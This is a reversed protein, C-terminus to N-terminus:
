ASTVKQNYLIYFQWSVQANFDSCKYLSFNYHWVPRASLFRMVAYVLPSSHVFQGFFHWVLRIYTCFLGKAKKIVKELQAQMCQKLLIWMQFIAFKKKLTKHQGPSFTHITQSFFLNKLVVGPNLIVWWWCSICSDYMTCFLRFLLDKCIYCIVDLIM